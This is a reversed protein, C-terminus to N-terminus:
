EKVGIRLAIGKIMAVLFLGVGLVVVVTGGTPFDLSFSLYSGLLSFLVGAIWGILLQRSFTKHLLVGTLAPVILFGFVLLVGAVRVLFTVLIGLVGYFIFEWLFDSQQKTKNRRSAQLLPTHILWYILGIVGCILLYGGVEPWTVWLLHGGMLDHVHENGHALRDGALLV